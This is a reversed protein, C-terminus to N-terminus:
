ANVTPRPAMTRAKSLEALPLLLEQVEHQYSEDGKIVLDEALMALAEFVPSPNTSAFVEKWTLAKM